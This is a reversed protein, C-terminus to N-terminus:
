QFNLTIMKDKDNIKLILILFMSSFIYYFPYIIFIILYNIIIFITFFNYQIHYLTKHIPHTTM